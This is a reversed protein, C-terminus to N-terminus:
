KNKEGRFPNYIFFSFNFLLRQSFEQKYNIHSCIYIYINTNTYIALLQSSLLAFLFFRDTKLFYQILSRSSKVHIYIDSIIERM